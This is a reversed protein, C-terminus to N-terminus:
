PVLEREPNVRANQTTEPGHWVVRDPACQLVGCQNKSTKHVQLLGTFDVSKGACQNDGRKM